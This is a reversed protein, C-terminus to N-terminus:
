FKVGFYLIKCRKTIKIAHIQIATKTLVYFNYFIKILICPYARLKTAFKESFDKKLM